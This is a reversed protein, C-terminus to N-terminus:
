FLPNIHIHIPITLTILSHLPYAYVPNTISSYNFIYICTYHYSIIFHMTFSIESFFSIISECMFSRDRPGHLKAHNKLSLHTAYKKGCVCMFELTAGLSGRREVLPKINQPLSSGTILTPEPSGLEGYIGVGGYSASQSYNQEYFNTGYQTNIPVPPVSNPFRPVIPSQNPYTPSNLSSLKMSQILPSDLVPVSYSGFFSFYLNM